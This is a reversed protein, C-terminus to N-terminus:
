SEENIYEETLDQEIGIIQGARCPMCLGNEILWDYNELKGSEILRVLTPLHLKVNDTM